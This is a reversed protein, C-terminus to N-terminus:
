NYNILNLVVITIHVLYDFNSVKFCIYGALGQLAGHDVVAMMEEDMECDTLNSEMEKIFNQEDSLEPISFEDNDEGGDPAVPANDPLLLEYNRTM